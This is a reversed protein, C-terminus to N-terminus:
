DPLLIAHDGSELEAGFLEGLVAGECAERGVSGEGFAHAEVGAVEGSDECAFLGGAGLEDGGDDGGEWAHVEVVEEFDDVVCGSGWGM